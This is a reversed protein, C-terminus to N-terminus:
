NKVIPDFYLAYEILAAHDKQSVGKFFVIVIKHSSLLKGDPFKINVDPESSLLSLPLFFLCGGLHRNKVNTRQDIKTM